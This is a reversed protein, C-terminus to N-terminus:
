KPEVSPSASEDDGWREFRAPPAGEIGDILRFVTPQDFDGSVLAGSSFPEQIIPTSLVVGDIEIALKERLHSRTFADMKRAGEATFEISISWGQPGFFPAASAVDRADCVPLAAVKVREGDPSEFPLETWAPEKWPPSGPAPPSIRPTERFALITYAEPVSAAEIWDGLEVLRSIPVELRLKDPPEVDIPVSGKELDERLSRRLWAKLAVTQEEIVEVSVDKSGPLIKLVIEETAERECAGLMLFAAAVAISDVRWTPTFAGRMEWGTDGPASNDLCCIWSQRDADFSTM